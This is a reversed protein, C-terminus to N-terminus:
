QSHSLNTRTIKLWGFRVSHAGMAAPNASITVELKWYAFALWRKPRAVWFVM